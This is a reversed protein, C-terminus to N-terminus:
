HPQVAAAASLALAEVQRTVLPVLLARTGLRVLRRTLPSFLGGGLLYGVGAAVAITRLPHTQVQGSLDLGRALGGFEDALRRTGDGVVRSAELIREARGNTAQM